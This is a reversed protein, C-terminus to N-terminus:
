NAVVRRRRVEAALFGGLMAALAVSFAGAAVLPTSTAPSSDGTLGAGRPTSGDGASFGSWLDGSATAGAVGSPTPSSEESPTALAQQGASPASAGSASSSKATATGSQRALASAAATPTGASRAVAEDTATAGSTPGAVSDAGSPGSSVAGGTPSASAQGSPAQQEDVSTSASTQGTGNSAQSTSRGTGSQQASASTVEVSMSARQERGPQGGSAVVYYVGEAVQPITISTSFDPGRGTALVEGDVSNWHISVPDAPFNTVSVQIQSGAAGSSQGRVASGTIGSQASCAWAVSASGLAFAAAGVGMLVSRRVSGGM